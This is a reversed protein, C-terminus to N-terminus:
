IVDLTKARFTILGQYNLGTLDTSQYQVQGLNTVDFTIGSDFDSEQTISWMGVQTHYTITITGSETIQQDDTLRYVNYNITSTRVAAPDFILLPIDIFTLQNNVIPASSQLIDNPGKLDNLVLTVEEAWSTAEEGWGKPDGSTPYNFTTNNVVLPISM